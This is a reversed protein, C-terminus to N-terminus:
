PYAIYHKNPLRWVEHGQWVAKGVQQLLIVIVISM